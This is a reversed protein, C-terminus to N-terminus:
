ASRWRRLWASTRAAPRLPRFNGRAAEFRSRHAGGHPLATLRFLGPCSRWFGTRNRRSRPDRRERHGSDLRVNGSIRKTEMAMVIRSSPIEGNQTAVGSSGPIANTSFSGAHHGSIRAFCIPGFRSDPSPSGNRSRLGSGGGRSYASLARWVAVPAIRSPPPARHGALWSVQWTSFGYIRDPTVPLPSM